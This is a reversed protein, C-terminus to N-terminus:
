WGLSRAWYVQIKLFRPLRLPPNNDSLVLVTEKKRTRHDDNVVNITDKLTAGFDTDVDGLEGLEIDPDEQMDQKLSNRNIRYRVLPTIWTDSSAM